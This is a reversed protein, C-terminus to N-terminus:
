ARETFLMILAAIAVLGIVVLAITGVVFLALPILVVIAQSAAAIWTVQRVADVKHARGAYWWAGIALLALLFVALKPVVHFVVLVGELVAVWLTIRLRHERLWRGPRTTGHDLVSTTM